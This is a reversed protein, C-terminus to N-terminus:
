QWVKFINEFTDPEPLVKHLGLYKRMIQKPFNERQAMQDLSM